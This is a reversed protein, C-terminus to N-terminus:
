RTINLLYRKGDLKRSGLPHSHLDPKLFGTHLEFVGGIKTDGPNCFWCSDM